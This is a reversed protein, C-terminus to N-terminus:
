AVLYLLFCWTVIGSFSLFLYPHHLKRFYRGEWRGVSRSLVHRQVMAFQQLIVALLYSFAIMYAPLCLEIMYYEKRNDSYNSVIGETTFM